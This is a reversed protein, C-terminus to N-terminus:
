MVTHVHRRAIRAARKPGNRKPTMHALNMQIGVYARLLRQLEALEGLQITEAVDDQHKVVDLLLPRQEVFKKRLREVISEPSNGFTEAAAERALQRISRPTKRERRVLQLDRLHETAMYLLAPQDDIPESKQRESFLARRAHQLRQIRRRAARLGNENTPYADIISLLFKDIMPRGAIPRGTDLRDETTM